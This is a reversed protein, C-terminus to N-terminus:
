VEQDRPNQGLRNRLRGLMITLDLEKIILPLEAPTTERCIGVSGLGHPPILFDSGQVKFRFFKSVM